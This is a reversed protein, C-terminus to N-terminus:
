REPRVFYYYPISVFPGMMFHLIAMWAKENDPVSKVAHNLTQIWLIALRIAAAMGIWFVSESVWGEPISELKAEFVGYVVVLLISLTITIDRRM